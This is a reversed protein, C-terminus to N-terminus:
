FVHTLLTKDKDINLNSIIIMLFFKVLEILFRNKFNKKYLACLYISNKCANTPQFFQM